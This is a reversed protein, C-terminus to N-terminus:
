GQRDPAVRTAIVSAHAGMINQFYTESEYPWSAERDVRWDAHAELHECTWEFYPADDTRFCFRGGPDTRAALESLFATQVMRRRHHRAKPWPDPFLLVTLDFRLASPVVELFELLEAKYFHLNELGRKAKKENAKRIRWSILDIGVCCAEPHQQAYDALWHGHGCGAEFVIREVGSLDRACVGRLEEKRAAQRALERAHAESVPGVPSM